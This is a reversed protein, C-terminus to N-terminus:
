IMKTMILSFYSLFKAVELVLQFYIIKQRDESSVLTYDSFNVLCKIEQVALLVTTQKAYLTLNCNIPQSFITEAKRIHIAASIIEFHKVFGVM